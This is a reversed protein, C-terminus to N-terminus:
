TEGWRRRHLQEARRELPALDTQSLRGPSLLKDAIRERIMHLRRFIMMSRSGNERMVQSIRLRQRQTLHVNALLGFIPMANMGYHVHYLFRRHHGAEAIPGVAVPGTAQPGNAAM